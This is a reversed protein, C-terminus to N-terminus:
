PVVIVLEYGSVKHVVKVVAGSPWGSTNTISLLWVEGKSWTSTSGDNTTITEETVTFASIDQLVGNRYVDFATGANEVPISTNRMYVQYVTTTGALGRKEEQILGYSTTSSAKGTEGTIYGSAWAYIIVALAVAVAVMLVVAIVPSVGKKKMKQVEM